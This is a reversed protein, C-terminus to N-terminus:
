FRRNTGSPSGYLAYRTPNWHLEAFMCKIDVGRLTLVPSQVASVYTIRVAMVTKCSSAAVNIETSHAPTNSSGIAVNDM